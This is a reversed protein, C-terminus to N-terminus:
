PKQRKANPRPSQKVKAGNVEPGTVGGGGGEADMESKVNIGSARRRKNTVNPSANASTGQSGTASGQQSAQAVMGVSTPGGGAGQLGHAHMAPSMNMNAPSATTGPLNLHAGPAPSAFQQGPPQAQPGNAFAQQGGPTRQGGPTQQALSPNFAATTEANQAFSQANYSTVLNRLSEQPSIDPHSRSHQFLPEMNSFTESIQPHNAPFLLMLLDTRCVELLVLVSPHVGWENVAQKPISPSPQEPAQIQRMRQNQAKKGSAKLASPSPKQEPSEPQTLLKSRLVYENHESVSIELMEMKGQQGFQATLSGTAVVKVLNAALGCNLLDNMGPPSESVLLHFHVEPM